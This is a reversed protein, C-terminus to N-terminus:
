RGIPVDPDPNPDSNNNPLLITASSAVNSAGFIGFGGAVNSYIQVPESFVDQMGAMEVSRLYQFVGASLTVVEVRISAGLVVEGSSWTEFEFDMGRGYNRIGAMLTLTYDRGDILEDSFENWSLTGTPTGDINDFLIEHSKDFYIEEEVDFRKTRYVINDYTSVSWDEWKSLWHEVKYLRIAYFNREGAPDSITVLIRSGDNTWETSVNKIVAASPVVDSATVKGHLPTEGELTLRDGAVLPSRFSYITNGSKPDVGDTAVPVEVGNRWIKFTADNVPQPDRGGFIFVSEGVGINHPADGTTPEVIANVVMKPGRVPGNYDMATECSVAFLAAALTTSIYTKKM